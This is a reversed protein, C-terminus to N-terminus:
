LKVWFMAAFVSSAYYVCVCRNLPGKDPVVWTLWYWLPLVLRSKLPALSLSHCHCRSPLICTKVESWVSLWALVGCSLKKCVPHGEQRGVLLAFCQFCQSAYYHFSIVDRDVYMSLFAAFSTGRPLTQISSMCRTPLYTLQPLCPTIDETYM